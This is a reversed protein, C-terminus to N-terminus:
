KLYHKKFVRDCKLLLIRVEDIFCILEILTEDKIRYKETNNLIRKRRLQM